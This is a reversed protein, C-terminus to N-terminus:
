FVQQHLVMSSNLSVPVLQSSSLFLPLHCKLIGRCTGKFFCDESHVIAIKQKKLCAARHVECHNEYFEGDSGCVPKYHRKCLDMCTCEAQGTERSIVCHRGLGCYKNECSGLSGDQILFGSSFSCFIM